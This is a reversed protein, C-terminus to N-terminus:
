DTSEIVLGPRIYSAYETVQSRVSPISIAIAAPLLLGIGFPWGINPYFLLPIFAILWPLARRYSFAVENRVSSHLLLYAPLSLIESIGYGWIGFNPITFIATLFFLSVYLGYARMVLGSRNKVYLISAHVGFFANLMYGLAIYSYIKLSPTWGSGVLGPLITPALLAFGALPIGMALAQLGLAEEVARRLRSTEEQVKGLVVMSLRFTATKVFGLVEVLRGTLSIFGVFEPGLYRGVILPNVLSRLSYIWISSSYAVGYRM